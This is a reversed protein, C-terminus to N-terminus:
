RKYYVVQDVCLANPPCNLIKLSLENKGTNLSVAYIQLMNEAAVTQLNQEETYELNGATLIETRQMYLEGNQFRYSGAQQEAIGLLQGSANDVVLWSFVWASDTFFELEYRYQQDAPESTQRYWATGALLGFDPTIHAEDACAVALLLLGSLILKKM